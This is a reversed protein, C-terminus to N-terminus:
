EIDTILKKSEELRKNKANIENNLWIIVSKKKFLKPGLVKLDNDVAIKNIQKKETLTINHNFRNISCLDDIVKYLENDEFETRTADTATTIDTNNDNTKYTATTQNQIM